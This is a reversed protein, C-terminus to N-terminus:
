YWFVGVMQKSTSRPNPEEPFVWVTLQKKTKPKFLIYLDIRKRITTEQLRPPNKPHSAQLSPQSSIATVEMSDKRHNASKNGAGTPNVAPCTSRSVIPGQIKKWYILTVTDRTVFIKNFLKWNNTPKLTQWSAKSFWNPHEFLRMKLKTQNNEIKELNVQLGVFAVHMEDLSSNQLTSNAIHELAKELNSIESHLNSIERWQAEITKKLCNLLRSQTRM